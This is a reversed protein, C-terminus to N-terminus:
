NNFWEDIVVQPLDFRISIASGNTPRAPLGRSPRPPQSFFSRVVQEQGWARVYFAITELKEDYERPSMPFSAQQLHTWMVNLRVLTRGPIDRRVISLDYYKGYKRHVLQKLVAGSLVDPQREAVPAERGLSSAWEAGQLEQLRRNLSTSLDLDTAAGVSIDALSTAEATGLQGVRQQFDVLLQEDDVDRSAKLEAEGPVPRLRWTRSSRPAWSEFDFISRIADVLGAHVALKRAAGNGPAPSARTRKQTTISLSPVATECGLSRGQLSHCGMM